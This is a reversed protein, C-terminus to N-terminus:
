GYIESLNIDIKESSSFSHKVRKIPIITSELIKIKKYDYKCNSQQNAIFCYINLKKDQYKKTFSMLTFLWTISNKFKKSVSSTNCNTSKMEILIINVINENIHLLITEAKKPKIEFILLNDKLNEIEFKIFEGDLDFNINLEKLSNNKQNEEVVSLKDLKQIFLNKNIFEILHNEVGINQNEIIM